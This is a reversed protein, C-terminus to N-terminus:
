RVERSLPPFQEWCPARSGGVSTWFCLLWHASLFRQFLSSCLHKRRWSKGEISTWLYVACWLCGLWAHTFRLQPYSGTASVLLTIAIKSDKHFAWSAEELLTSPSSVPGCSCSKVEKERVFWMKLVKCFRNTWIWFTQYSPVTTVM